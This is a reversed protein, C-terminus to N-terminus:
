DRRKIRGGPFKDWPDQGTDIGPPESPPSPPAPSPPPSPPNIPPDTLIKPEPSVRGPDGPTRHPGGGSPDPSETPLGEELLHELKNEAPKLRKLGKKLLGKVGDVIESGFAMAVTLLQALKGKLFGFASGSQSGTGKSNSQQAEYLSDPDMVFSALESLDGLWSAEKGTGDKASDGVQANPESGSKPSDSHTAKGDKSPKKSTGSKKAFPDYAEGSHSDTIYPGSPITSPDDHKHDSGLEGDPGDGPSEHAYDRETLTGGRWQGGKPTMVYHRQDTPDSYSKGHAWAYRKLDQLTATAPLDGAEGIQTGGSGSQENESAPATDPQKQVMPRSLLRQVYRNGRERQLNLLHRHWDTRSFGARYDVPDSVSLRNDQTASAVTPSPSNNARAVSSERERRLSDRDQVSIMERM